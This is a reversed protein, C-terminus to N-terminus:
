AQAELGPSGFARGYTAVGRLPSPCPASEPKRAGHPHHSHTPPHPTGRTPPCQPPQAGSTTRCENGHRRVRGQPGGANADAGRRRRRASRRGDSRRRRATRRPMGPTPQPPCRKTSCRAGAAVAPQPLVFDQRSVPSAFARGHTAVGRVPSPHNSVAPPHATGRPHPVAAAARRVDNPVRQRTAPSQGATGRHESRRWAATSTGFAARREAAETGHPAADRPNTPAPVTQDLLSDRRGGSTSSPRLGTEFGPSAFARGHTAVGPIPSPHNSVAPPHATGRPHPVAAAARRVDNPVRQRTAPSQGATGRHESRRWAATSTGFAARREAAETGAARCNAPQPLVFDQRSVRHASRGGTRPSEPSSARIPSVTPPPPHPTGRPHPVAAAARRVDNPVRQRTAPSQGATGRHEHRRWM